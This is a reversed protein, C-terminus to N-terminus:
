RKESLCTQFDESSTEENAWKRCAVNAFLQGEEPHGEAKEGNEM